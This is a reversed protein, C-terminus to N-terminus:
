YIDKLFYVIIRSCWNRCTTVEGAPSLLPHQQEVGGQGYPFMLCTRVLVFSPFCKRICYNASNIGFFLMYYEDKPAAICLLFTGENVALLMQYESRCM